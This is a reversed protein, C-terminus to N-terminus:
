PMLERHPLNDYNWQKLVDDQHYDFLSKTKLNEIHGDCFLVNWRGGHRQHRKAVAGASAPTPNEEMNENYAINDDLLAWGTGDAALAADGIAVMRSPLLVQNERTALFDFTQAPNVQTFSGGIGFFKMQLIANFGWAVGHDNIGYSGVAEWYDPNFTPNNVLRRQSPCLYLGNKSSARGQYVNTDWTSGSYPMLLEHWWTAPPPGPLEAHGVNYIPYAKFDGVYGSLAIGLQHLNNRCAASYSAERARNLAPLLLAALIAIIAVVVLLEILTFAPIRCSRAYQGLRADSGFQRGPARM